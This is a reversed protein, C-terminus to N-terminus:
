EQILMLIHNKIKLDRLIKRKKSKEYNVNVIVTKYTLDGGIDTACKYRRVM